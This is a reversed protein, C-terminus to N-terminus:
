KICSPEKFLGQFGLRTMEDSFSELEDFAGHAHLTALAAHNNPHLLPSFGRWRTGYSLGLTGALYSMVPEYDRDYSLGGLVNGLFTMTAGGRSRAEMFGAQSCLKLLELDARHVARTAAVVLDEDNMKKLDELNLGEYSTFTPEDEAEEWQSLDEFYDTLSPYGEQDDTQFEGDHTSHIMAFSVEGTYLDAVVIESSARAIPFKQFMRAFNLLGDKDKKFIKAPTPPNGIDAGESKPMCNRVYYAVLSCWEEVPEDPLAARIDAVPVRVSKYEEGFFDYFKKIKAKLARNSM